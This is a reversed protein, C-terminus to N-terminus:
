SLIRQPKKIILPEKLTEGLKAWVIERGKNGVQGSM